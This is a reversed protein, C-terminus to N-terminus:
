LRYADISTLKLRWSLLSSTDESRRPRPAQADQVAALGQKLVSLTGTHVTTERQGGQQGRSHPGCGPLGHRQADETHDQQKPVQWGAPSPGM